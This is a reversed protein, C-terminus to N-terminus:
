LVEQKRRGVRGNGTNLARYTPTLAHCNPCLIKLNGELNNNSNGDVHHYELPVRGTISHRKNWGCEECREGRTEILYRRVHNSVIGPGRTGDVLGQKWQEIYKWYTLTRACEGACTRSKALPIGKGCVACKGLMPRTDSSRHDSCGPSCYTKRPWKIKRHCVICRKRIKAAPM